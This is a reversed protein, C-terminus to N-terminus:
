GAVWLRGEHLPVRHKRNRWKVNRDRLKEFHWDRFGSAVALEGLWREVPVHIGYPASDGIVLCVECPSQTVRRLSRWVHALDVFYLAVMTHYNKKGGHGEREDALRACVSALEDHIPAVAEDQIHAPTAVVDDSVHQTCSRLLRQRVAQQLDAWREVEGFFTMELRTADAYDYNNAYPPSTVVLNAWGDPVGACDRADGELLVASGTRDERRALVMDHVMRRIRAAFAEFADVVPAQKHNPLVYQGQRANVSAVERLIAALALWSLEAAPREDARELIAERLAVLEALAAPTYCRQLLGNQPPIDACRLRADALVEGAHASLSQPDSRWLLKARAVRAVFPHAEIGIAEADSAEAELLLTGSGVFPDLVRVYGGDARAALLWRLWQASFGAYYRFWNHIPM